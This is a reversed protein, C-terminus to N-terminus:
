PWSCTPSYLRATIKRRKNALHQKELEDAATLVLMLSLSQEDPIFLLAGSYRRLDRLDVPGLGADECQTVYVRLCDGCLEHQRCIGEGPARNSV